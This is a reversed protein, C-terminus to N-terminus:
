SQRTVLPAPADSSAGAGDDGAASGLGDDGAADDSGTSGLADYGGGDDTVTGSSTSGTSATSAAAQEGRFGSLASLRSALAFASLTGAAVGRRIRTVRRARAALRERGLAARDSTSPFSM